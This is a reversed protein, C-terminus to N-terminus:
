DKKMCRSGGDCRIVDVSGKAEKLKIHLGQDHSIAEAQESTKENKTPTEEIERGCSTGASILLSAATTKAIVNLQKKM